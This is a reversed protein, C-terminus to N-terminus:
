PIFEYCGIDPNGTRGVGDLDSGIGAAIDGADICPSTSQLHFNFEEMAEPVVFEPSQNNICNIFNSVTTDTKILCNTFMYNYLSLSADGDFEIEDDNGGYIICNTFNANLTDDLSLGDGVNLYNSLRLVSEEHDVYSSSENYFTCHTFNYNGGLECQVVYDSANFVLCNVADIEATLGLIGSSLTNYIITNNLKLNPESINESLSDVRIGIVSNKIIAHDIVNNVSGRLFHLGDWQGPKNDFFSELRDGQFTVPNTQMGNVILTGATFIRANAHVYVRVGENITLTCASDIYVNDIIVHPLDDIWNDNCNLICLTLSSGDDFELLQCTLTEKSYFHANQGWAELVVRQSNGNTLFTVSDVIVFPNNGNVPDVTVEVFVYMSDNSAIEIDEFHMGTIGDVNIRFASQNGGALNIESIKIARGHTNKIKFYNTTSGVTTFVTDFTLTDLPDGLADSFELIASPDTILL